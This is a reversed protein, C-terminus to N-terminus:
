LSFKPAAAWEFAKHNDITDSLHMLWTPGQYIVLACTAVWLLITLQIARDKFLVEEPSGTITSQTSLFQYRMVGYLVFPVTLLMAEGHSSQFSYFAYSTVLSPVIIGELRDLLEKSYLGLSRRHALSKDGLVNLEQRRKELALFLAGLSTCLLFWGSTPVSVAVAGAVARLVFGGAIAFVDLIVKHKLMTTYSLSLALYAITVVALTPRVLFSITVGAIVAIVCAILAVSAPLKGSAIPRKCKTPHLRDAEADLVDNLLYVAGSVLCFSAVCATALALLHTEHIHMSFLLPAYAILNKTWQKPRMAKIVLGLMEPASVPGPQV